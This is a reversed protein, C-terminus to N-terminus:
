GGGWTIHKFRGYEMRQVEKAGRRGQQALRLGPSQLLEQAEVVCVCIPPVRGMHAYVCKYIVINCM